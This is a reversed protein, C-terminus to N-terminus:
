LKAALQRAKAKMEKESTLRLKDGLPCKKSRAIQRNRRLRNQRSFLQILEHQITHVPVSLSPTVPIMSKNLTLATPIFVQTQM